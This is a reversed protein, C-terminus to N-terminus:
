NDQITTENEKNRQIEEQVKKVIERRLENLAEDITKNMRLEKRLSEENREITKLSLKREIKSLRQDVEYELKRIRRDKYVVIGIMLGLIFVVLLTAVILSLKRAKIQMRMNSDMVEKHEDVMKRVDERSPHNSSVSPCPTMQRTPDDQSLTMVKSLIRGKRKTDGMGVREDQSMTMVKSLTRGKRRHENM